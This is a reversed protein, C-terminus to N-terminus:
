TSLYQTTVPHRMRPIEHAGLRNQNGTRHITHRHIHLADHRSQRRQCITVAGLEKGGIGPGLHFTSLVNLKFLVFRALARVFHHFLRDLPKLIALGLDHNRLIFRQPNVTEAM